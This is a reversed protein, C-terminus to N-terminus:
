QRNDALRTRTEGRPSAYQAWAPGVDDPREPQGPAAHYADEQAAAEALRREHEEAPTEQATGPDDVEGAQTAM